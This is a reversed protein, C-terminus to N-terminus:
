VELFLNEQQVSGIRNNKKVFGANKLCFVFCIAKATRTFYLLLVAEVLLRLRKKGYVLSRFGRLLKVIKGLPVLFPKEDQRKTLFYIKHRFIEGFFVWLGVINKVSFLCTRGLLSVLARPLPLRSKYEYSYVGGGGLSKRETHTGVKRLTCTENKDKLVRSVPFSQLFCTEYFCFRCSFYCKHIYLLDKQQVWWIVPLKQSQKKSFTKRGGASKLCFCSLHNKV